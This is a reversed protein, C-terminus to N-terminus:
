KKQLQEAKHKISPGLRNHLSKKKPGEFCIVQKMDEGKELLVNNLKKKMLALKVM